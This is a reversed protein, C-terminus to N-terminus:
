PPILWLDDHSGGGRAIPTADKGGLDGEPKRGKSFSGSTVGWDTRTQRDNNRTAGRPDYVTGV